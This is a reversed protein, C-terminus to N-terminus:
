IHYFMMGHFLGFIAFSITVAPNLHGMSGLKGAVYVGLAVALGWDIAILTWNAGNAYAKKLNVGAGVGIGFVILIMTGILEGLFGNM